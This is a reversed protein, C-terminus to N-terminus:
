FLSANVYQMCYATKKFLLCLVIDQSAKTLLGRSDVMWIKALADEHSIGEEEMAMCLLNAIGISAQLVLHFTLTLPQDFYDVNKYSVHLNCM